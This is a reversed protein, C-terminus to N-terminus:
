SSLTALESLLRDVEARTNYHAIGARLSQEPLRPGLAV